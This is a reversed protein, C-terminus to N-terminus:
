KRYVEERTHFGSDIIIEDINDKTVVSPELLISPVDESGNFIMANVNEMDKVSVGKALRVAAYVTQRSLETIPKYITLTQKGNVIHQCNAIDADQGAIIIPESYKSEIVAQIVSNAIADNGCIIANPFQKDAFLQKMRKYALDYNWNDTYFLEGVRLQSGKITKEVGEKILIMNYDDLPGYLCYLTGYPRRKLIESAMEEGVKASDVTMYLDIDANRTLRDYSIVPINKAKASKLVDTLSDAKKPLVILVDVNKDILYQIQRIQENVDNGANQVIVDADVSKATALFVDLDRRWREIALTDISFGITVKDKASAPNEKKQVIKSKSCSTFVCVASICILLIVSRIKLITKSEM